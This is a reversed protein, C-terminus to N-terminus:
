IDLSINGSIVGKERAVKCVHDWAERRSIENGNLYYRNEEDSQMNEHIRADIGFEKFANSVESSKAHVILCLQVRFLKGPYIKEFNCADRLSQEYTGGAVQDLEEDSLIEDAYKDMDAM